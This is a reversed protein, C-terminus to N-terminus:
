VIEVKLSTMSDREQASIEDTLNKLNSKFASSGVDSQPLAFMFKEYNDNGDSVVDIGADILRRTLTQLRAELLSALKWLSPKSSGHLCLSVTSYGCPPFSPRSNIDTFFIQTSLPKGAPLEILRKSVTAFVDIIRPIYEKPVFDGFLKQWKAPPIESVSPVFNRFIEDCNSDEIQSFKPSRIYEMLLRVIHFTRICHYANGKQRFARLIQVTMEVVMGFEGVSIKGDIAEIVQQMFNPGTLAIKSRSDLPKLSSIIGKGTLSSSLLKGPTLDNDVVAFILDYAVPPACDFLLKVKLRPCRSSMGKHIFTIGCDELQKAFKEICDFPSAPSQLLCCMDIDSRRGIPFSGFVHCVDKPNGDYGIMKCYQSTLFDVGVTAARDYLTSLHCGRLVLDSYLASDQNKRVMKTANIVEIRISPYKKAMDKVATLNDTKDDWFKVLNLNKNEIILKEIVRVKYQSSTESDSLSDPKFYVADPYIQAEELAREVAKRTREIRATVVVTLSGAREQHDQYDALAPGPLISLPPMLSDPHGLWGRHPWVKGTAREYIERGDKPDVSDFLTLDFDFVFLQTIKQAGTCISINELSPLAQEQPSDNAQIRPLMNHYDVSSLIIQSETDDVKKVALGIVGELIMEKDKMPLYKRSELLKNSDKALAHEEKSLTIHPFQNESSLGRPLVVVAAQINKDDVVSVVKVKVRKGIKTHLLSKLSPEFVLTVHDAIVDPHTPPFTSLLLWQSETTLFVATYYAVVPETPELMDVPPHCLSLISFSQKEGSKRLAPHSLTPPALVANKDKQWRQYMSLSAAHDVNHVCRSRYMDLMRADLCPVELITHPIALLKCIYVYFTYEWLQTNTNDIIILKKHELIANLYQDFCHLHASHLQTMEFSYSSKNTFYNDASCVAVQSPDNLYETCQQALFSKGSGPLGRLIVVQSSHNVVNKESNLKELEKITRDFRDGTDIKEQSLSDMFSEKQTSSIVGGDALQNIRDSIISVISPPLCSLSHPLKMVTFFFGDEQPGSGAVCLRLTNIEQTGLHMDTFKSYLAPVITATHAERQMPRSLRLLTMHPTYESFNGPTRVGAKQLQEMLTSVFRTLGYHPVVKAYLLRGHFNGVGTFELETSPPVIQVYSRQLNRIVETATAKQVDSEIRLMSLTVHLAKLSVCGVALDPACRRIHQMIKEVKEVVQLSDIKICVFHTPRDNNSYGVKSYNSEDEEILKIEVDPKAEPSEQSDGDSPVTSKPPTAIDTIVKGGRSGFVNDLQSRKDWIIQDKYKFYQIRHKPVALVNHGVTSLDEWSFASFPKEIIGTFRDLYGITFEETQLDPDWLIRSIVDAAQRLPAKKGTQPDHESPKEKPEESNKSAQNTSQSSTMSERHTSKNETPTAQVSQVQAGPHFKHCKSGFKCKKQLFFRCVEVKKPAEMSQVTKSAVLEDKNQPLDPNIDVEKELLNKELWERALEVM